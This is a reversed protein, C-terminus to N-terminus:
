QSLWVFCMFVGHPWLKTDKLNFWHYMYYGSHKLSSGKFIRVVNRDKRRIYKSFGWKVSYINVHCKEPSNKKRGKSVANATAWILCICYEALAETLLLNSLTVYSAVTIVVQKSCTLFCVFLIYHHGIDPVINLVLVEYYSPCCHYYENNKWFWM